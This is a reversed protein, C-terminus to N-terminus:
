VLNTDLNISLTARWVESSLSAVPASIPFIGANLVLIDLGGFQRVTQDLAVNLQPENTLDCQIGLYSKSKNISMVCESLDRGVVAAGRALLTTVCAKGIGSAAGTVLAVEGTFPPPTGGKRLKAQELDWYEVEFIDQSPLAHWGGLAEARAIIHMTQRYIDE